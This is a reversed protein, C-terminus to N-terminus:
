WPRTGMGGLAIFAIRFTQTNTQDDGGHWLIGNFDQLLCPVSNQHLARMDGAIQPVYSCMLRNSLWSNFLGHLISFDLKEVIELGLLGNQVLCNKGHSAWIRLNGHTGSVVIRKGPAM